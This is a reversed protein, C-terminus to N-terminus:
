CPVPCDRPQVRGEVANQSKRFFAVVHGDTDFYVHPDTGVMDNINPVLLRIM